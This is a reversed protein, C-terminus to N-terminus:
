VSVPLKPPREMGGPDIGLPRRAYPDSSPVVLFDDPSNAITFPLVGALHHHITCCQDNVDVGTHDHQSGNQDNHHSHVHKLTGTAALDDAIDHETEIDHRLDTILLPVLAAFQAILFLGLLWPAFRRLKRSLAM